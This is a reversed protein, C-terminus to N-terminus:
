EQIAKRRNSLYADRLSSYPDVAADKVNNYLRIRGPLENIFEVGRATWRLEDDDIYNIPDLFSGGVDGAFDRPTTPGLLPLVVFPGNDIGWVAFTQGLDESPIKGFVEEAPTGLGGVGATTNILFAGVEEAARKGKGQLASSVLREPMRLNSFFNSIASQVLEPTIYDYGQGIPDLIVSYVVDNFSFIARNVPEIPDWVTVEESNPEGYFLEEEFSLPTDDGGGTPATNM